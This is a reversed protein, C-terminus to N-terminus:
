FNHGMWDICSKINMNRHIQIKPTLIREISEKLPKGFSSDKKNEKNRQSLTSCESEISTSETECSSSDCGFSSSDSDNNSSCKEKTKDTIKRKKVRNKKTEILSADTVISSSIDNWGSARKGTKRHEVPDVSSLM